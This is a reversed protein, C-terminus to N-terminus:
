RNGDIEIMGINYMCIYIYILRDIQRDIQKYWTIESVVLKFSALAWSGCLQFARGWVFYLYGHGLRALLKKMNLSINSSSLISLKAVYIYIYIYMCLIVDWHRAVEQATIRVFGSDLGLVEWRGGQKRSRCYRVGHSQCGINETGHPHHEDRNLVIYWKFFLVFQLTRKFRDISVYTYMHICIYVYTHIIHLVSFHFDRVPHNWCTEFFDTGRNPIIIMSSGGFHRQLGFDPWLPEFAEPRVGLQTSYWWIWWIWWIDLQKWLMILTLLTGMM